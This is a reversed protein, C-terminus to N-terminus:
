QSLKSFRTEAYDLGHSPWDATSVANAAIFASDVRRTVAAIHGRSGKAPGGGQAMAVAALAGLSTVLALSLAVRTTRSSCGPAHPQRAFGSDMPSNMTVGGCKM